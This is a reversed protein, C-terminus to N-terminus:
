LQLQALDPRRSNMVSSPPAAATAARPAHAAPPSAPSRSGKGRIPEHPPLDIARMGGLSSPPPSQRHRSRPSRIDSPRYDFQDVAPAPPRVPEGGLQQSRLLLFKRM